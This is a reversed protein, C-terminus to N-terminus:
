VHARGIELEKLGDRLADAAAYDKAKRLSQRAGLLLEMLPGTLDDDAARAPLTLELGLTACWEGM